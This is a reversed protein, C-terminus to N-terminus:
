TATILFQGEEFYAHEWGNLEFPDRVFEVGKSGMTLRFWYVQTSERLVLDQALELVQGLDPVSASIFVVEPGVKSIAELLEGQTTAYVDLRREAPLLRAGMHQFSAASAFLDGPVSRELLPSSFLDFLEPRVKPPNVIIDVQRVIKISPKGFSEVVPMPYFERSGKPLLASLDLEGGSYNWEGQARSLQSGDTYLVKLETTEGGVTKVLVATPLDPREKPIQASWMKQDAVFVPTMAATTGSELTVESIMAKAHRAFVQSYAARLLYWRKCVLSMAWYADLSVLSSFLIAVDPMPFEEAEVQLCIAQNPEPATSALSHRTKMDLRWWAEEGHEQIYAVMQAPRVVGTQRICTKVEQAFPDDRKLARDSFANVKWSTLASKLLEKSPVKKGLESLYTAFTDVEYDDITLAYPRM